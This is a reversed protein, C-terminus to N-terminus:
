DYHKKEERLYHKYPLLHPVETDSHLDINKKIISYELDYERCLNSFKKFKEWSGLEEYDYLIVRDITKLDINKFYLELIDLDVLLYMELKKNFFRAHEELREKVEPYKEGNFTLGFYMGM